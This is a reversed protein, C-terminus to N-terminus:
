PALYNKSHCLSVNFELVVHHDNSFLLGVQICDLRVSCILGPDEEHYCQNVSQGSFGCKKLTSESGSCEMYGIWIPGSGQGFRADGM